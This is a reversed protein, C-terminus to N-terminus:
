ATLDLPDQGGALRRWMKQLMERRQQEQRANHEQEQSHGGQERRADDNAGSPNADRPAQQVQLKDVAVGHSELVSKLQNLSHGLLRTAEDNSTEFAATVLGDRVQVTVQLAGLQPPDLRLRMSGGNPLVEARMSTVINEHNASAFRVEPPVPPAAPAAPTGAHAKEPGANLMSTTVADTTVDATSGVDGHPRHDTTAPLSQSEPPLTFPDVSEKAGPASSPRAAQKEASVPAEDVPGDAADEFLAPTMNARPGNSEAPAGDAHPPQEAGDAAYAVSRTGLVDDAAPATTAPGGAEGGTEARVGNAVDGTAPATVIGTSLAVADGDASDDNTKTDAGASEDVAHAEDVESVDV